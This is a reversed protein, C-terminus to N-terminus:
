WIDLHVGVEGGSRRRSHGASVSWAIAAATLNESIRGDAEGSLYHSLCGRVSAPGHADDHEGHHEAQGEDRHDAHVQQAQEVRRHGCPWWIWILIWGVCCRCYRPRHGSTVAPPTGPAFYAHVKINPLHNQSPM